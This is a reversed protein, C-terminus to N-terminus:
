DENEPHVTDLLSLEGLVDLSAVYAAMELGIDHGLQEEENGLTLEVALTECTCGKYLYSQGGDKHVFVWSQEAPSEAFYREIINLGQQPPEDRQAHLYNITLGHYPCTTSLGEAESSSISTAITSPQILLGALAEETAEPSDVNLVSPVSPM